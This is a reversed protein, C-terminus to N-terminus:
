YIGTNLIDTMKLNITILLKIQLIFYFIFQCFNDYFWVNGSINPLRQIDKIICIRRKERVKIVDAFIWELM